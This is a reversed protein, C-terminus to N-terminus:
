QPEIGLGSIEGFRNEAERLTADFSMDVRRGAGPCVVQVGGLAMDGEQLSLAVGRIRRGIYAGHAMDERRLCLIAEKPGGLAALAKETLAVLREPYEPLATYRRLKDLVLAMTEGACAQRRALLKQRNETERAALEQAGASQVQAIGTRRLEEGMTEAERRIRELEEEMRASAEETKLRIDEEAAAQINELFCKLTENM